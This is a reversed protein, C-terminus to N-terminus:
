INASPGQMKHPYLELAPTSYELSCGDSVDRDTIQLTPVTHSVVGIFLIVFGPIHRPVGTFGLLLMAAQGTIDNFLPITVSAIDGSLLSRALQSIIGLCLNFSPLSLVGFRPILKM